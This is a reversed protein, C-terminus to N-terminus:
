PAHRRGYSVVYSAGRMAVMPDAPEIGEVVATPTFMLQRQTADSDAVVRTVTIEGLKVVPRTAPWAISPDDIKDGVEALQVQLAFHM